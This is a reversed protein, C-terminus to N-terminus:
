EIEGKAIEDMIIPINKTILENFTQLNFTEKYHLCDDIYSFCIESVEAEFGTADPFHSAIYDDVLAEEISWLSDQTMGEGCYNNYLAREIKIYVRHLEIYGTIGKEFNYNTM